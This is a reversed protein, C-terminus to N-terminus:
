AIYPFTEVAKRISTSIIKGQKMEGEFKFTNINDFNTLVFSTAALVISPVVEPEEDMLELIKQGNAWKPNNRARKKLNKVITDAVKILVQKEVGRFQVKAM